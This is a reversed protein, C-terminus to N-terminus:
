VGFQRLLDEPLPDDFDDPVAFEGDCLGIPRSALTAAPMPRLEAIPQQNEAIVISEGSQVRRIYALFNEQVETLNVTSM